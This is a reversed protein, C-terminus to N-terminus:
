YAGSPRRVGRGTPGQGAPKTRRMGLRKELSAWHPQLEEDKKIEKPPVEPKDKAIEQSFWRLSRCPALPRVIRRLM